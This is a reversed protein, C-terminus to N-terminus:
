REEKIHLWFIWAKFFRTGTHLREGKEFQVSVINKTHWFRSTELYNYVHRQFEASSMDGNSNIITIEYPCKAPKVHEVKISQVSCCAAYIIIGILVLISILVAIWLKPFFENQYFRM